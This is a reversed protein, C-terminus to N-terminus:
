EKPKPSAKTKEAFLNKLFFWSIYCFYQLVALLMAVPIWLLWPVHYARLAPFVIIFLLADAILDDFLCIDKKRSHDRLLLIKEKLGHILKRGLAM